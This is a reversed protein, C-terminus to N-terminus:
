VNIQDTHHKHAVAMAGTKNQM